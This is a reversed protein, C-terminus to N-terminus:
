EGVETIKFKFPLAFCLNIFTAHSVAPDKRGTARSKEQRTGERTGDVPQREGCM